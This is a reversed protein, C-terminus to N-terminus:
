APHTQPPLPGSDIPQPSAPPAQLLGVITRADTPPVRDEGPFLEQLLAREAHKKQWADLPRLYARDTLSISHQARDDEHPEGATHAHPLRDAPHSVAGVM